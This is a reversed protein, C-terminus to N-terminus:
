ARHRANFDGAIVYYNEDSGLDLRNFLANLEDTFSHNEDNNAYMAIVFLNNRPLRVKVITHEIIKNGASSPTAVLEHDLSNKILVATGDGGRNGSWDTKNFDYNAFTLAHRKQLKTECILVIDLDNATVFNLLDARRPQRVISNANISAIKLSGPRPEPERTIQSSTTPGSARAM